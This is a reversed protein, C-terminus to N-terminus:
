ASAARISPLHPNNLLSNTSLPSCVRKPATAASHLTAQPTSSGSATKETPSQGLATAKIKLRGHTDQVSQVTRSKLLTPSTSHISLASMYLYRGNSDIIVFLGEPLKYTKDDATVTSAFTFANAETKQAIVGDTIVVAEPNLYGYNKSTALPTACIGEAVMLYQTDLVLETALNFYSIGVYKKFVWGDATNVFQATRTQFENNNVTWNQGDYIAYACATGNYVVAIEDGEVAYPKNAKLYLPIYVEPKELKNASFGMEAYDAADLAVVNNAEAWKSGDYTYVATM